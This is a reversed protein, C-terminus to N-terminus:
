SWVPVGLLHRVTDRDSYRRREAGVIQVTEHGKGAVLVVDGAHAAELADAIAQTRDREVSVQAATQEPIGNRIDAIIKSGDEGRPNDDTLVIREAAAAAVAGMQERKGRDREGGCGFVVCVKGSAHARVANLAQELADPTHAYDIVVLPQNGGGFGEMRGPVTRAHSVRSLTDGFPRGQALLVALVALLNEANFQGVLLSRLTGSGFDGDVQMELGMGHARVDRAYLHRGRFWTPVEPRLGYGILEVDSACCGAFYEAAPDDLNLVARQLEPWAFLKGKAKRYAEMTGHYDLHDRTFNTFVASEFHVGAVRAQDLAHSSVEMAVQGAGRDRLAALISQLRVPNPTTEIAPELMGYLGYGLTGILGCPQGWNSLVQALISTVSTKGNTGTVGTVSMHASPDDFFRSAILGSVARLDPVEVCAVKPPLKPMKMDPVPEYVIAAAGRACAEAAHVMGHEHTGQYALFVWGPRVRRSDLALGPVTLAPVPIKKTFGALLRDLTKSHDALPSVNM